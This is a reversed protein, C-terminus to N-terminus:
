VTSCLVLSLHTTYHCKFHMEDFNLKQHSKKLKNEGKHPAYNVYFQMKDEKMNLVIM